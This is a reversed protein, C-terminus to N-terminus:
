IGYTCTSILNSTKPKQQQQKKKKAFEIQDFSFVQIGKYRVIYM